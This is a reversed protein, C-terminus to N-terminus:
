LVALAHDDRVILHTRRVSARAATRTRAIRTSRATLAHACHERRSCLRERPVARIRACKLTPSLETAGDCGYMNRCIYM